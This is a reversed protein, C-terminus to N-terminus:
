LAIQEEAYNDEAFAIADRRNLELAETLCERLAVLLEARSEEQANVGPVEEIWGYWWPGEQKIIATFENM